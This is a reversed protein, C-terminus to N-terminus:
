ISCGSYVSCSGVINMSQRRQFCLCQCSTLRSNQTIQFFMLFFIGITKGKAQLALTVEQVRLPLCLGVPFQGVLFPEKGVQAIFGWIGSMRSEFISLGEFATRSNLLVKVQSRAESWWLVRRGIVGLYTFSAHVFQWVLSYPGTVADQGQYIGPFFWPMRTVFAANEVASCPLSSAPRQCWLLGEKRQGLDGSSGITQLFVVRLPTGCLWPCLVM